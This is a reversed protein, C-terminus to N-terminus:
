ETDAACQHCGGWDGCRNSLGGACGPMKGAPYPSDGGDAFRVRRLAPWLRDARQNLPRATPGRRPGRTGQCADQMDYVLVPFPRCVRWLISSFLTSTHSIRYRAVVNQRCRRWLLSFNVILRCIAVLALFRFICRCGCGPFDVQPAGPTSQGAFQAPHGIRLQRGAVLCAFEGAPQRCLEGRVWPETHFCVAVQVQFKKGCRRRRGAGSGCRSRPVPSIIERWQGPGARATAPNKKQLEAVARASGNAICAGACSVVRCTAFQLSLRHTHDVQGKSHEQKEVDTGCAARWWDGGGAAFQDGTSEYM